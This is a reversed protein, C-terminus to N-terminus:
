RRGAIGGMQLVECPIALRYAAVNLLDTSESILVEELRMTFTTHCCGHQVAAVMRPITMPSISTGPVRAPM